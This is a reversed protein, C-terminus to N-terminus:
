GGDLRQWGSPQDPLGRIRMALDGSEERFQLQGDFAQAISSFTQDEVSTPDLACVGLGDATRIRSNMTHLFRYVSRTDEAYLLLPTLTYLGTRVFKAGNARLRQYISSFHIGIGTLDSPSSVVKVNGDSDDRDGTCDVAGVRSFDHGGGIQDYEDLVKRAARDAAIVLAGEQPSSRVLMRLVNRRVGGFVPGTVLLNTGPDVPDIPLGDFGYATQQRSSM